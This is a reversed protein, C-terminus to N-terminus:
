QYPENAPANSLDILIGDLRPYGFGAVHVTGKTSRVASIRRLGKALEDVFEGSTKPLGEGGDLPFLCARRAQIWAGTPSQPNRARRGAGDTVSAGILTLSMM